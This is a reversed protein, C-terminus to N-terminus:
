GNSDIKARYTRDHSFQIRKKADPYFIERLQKRVARDTLSHRQYNSDIAFYRKYFAGVTPLSFEKRKERFFFENRDFEYIYKKASLKVQKGGNGMKESSASTMAWQQMKETAYMRQMVSQAFYPFDADSVTASISLTNRFMVSDFKFNFNLWWYFDYLTDIRLQSHEISDSMMNYFIDWFTPIEDSYWQKKLFDVHQRWPKDRLEPYIGFLQNGASPGFVQDGGEGDLVITSSLNLKSLDLNFFEIQNYQKLFNHYFMPNENYSNDTSVIHFKEACAPTIHKLISTAVSTSDIGGSWFLYVDIGNKMATVIGAGFEDAAETFTVPLKPLCPLPFRTPEIIWPSAIDLPKTRSSIYEIGPPSPFRRYLSFYDAYQQNLPISEDMGFLSTHDLYLLNNM